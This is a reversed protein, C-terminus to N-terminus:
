AAPAATQQEAVKRFARELDRLRRDDTVKRGELDTVYFSDIAAGKETTIRAVAIQFGADSVARLYYYLLGLRDPATIDVVTYNPNTEASISIRTPFDLTREWKSIRRLKKALLPGFDYSDGQLAEDLLKELRHQDRKDEVAEFRPTTVRFIDLVLGDHRTFIDASLISLENVALAGCIRALLQRRDWTCVWMESHGANPRALWWVVPRLKHAETNWRKELFERFLRLHDAIEDPTHTLLYREPMSAFHADIELVFDAPLRGTVARKMEQLEVLRQRRYGASDALFRSAQRYLAWALSETWSNWIKEDGVGLGDAVTMLMLADLHEQQRVIACFEEITAEDSLDRQRATRAMLDHNDVLFLLTKRQESTLQLRRAVKQANVTSEIVHHRSNAAKGTDHLLLALYLTQPEDMKQFLERVGQHRPEETDLLGDLKEICVLTHEDVTYRHFYEHQVLATLRGFEPMWRGLFDVRHMVRLIPGVQGKHRLIEAFIERNAKLYRFTNDVYKLRRRVLQRLEPSIRLGRLQVHQFLRMMRAKDEKFIQRDRYFLRDGIAVFGDFEERASAQRKRFPLFKFFGGPNPEEQTPLALRESVLESIEYIARANSYYDRMLAETRLLVDPFREKYGLRDALDKQNGVLIVDVHRGTVYHLETRLRFIFDYARDLERQETENLYKRAVIDKTTRVGEKFYAMWLLNQYDRLGGCGNKINPEQMYVTRGYKSHRAMQDELREQLYDDLHGQVCEKQFREQFKKFLEEDGWLLRAELLATKSQMEGNAEAITENLNRTSHGPTLDCAFIIHLVDKVIAELGAALRIGGDRLFSIDVDSKPNLERRGYGGIAMLAVRPAKGGDGPVQGVAVDMLHRLFDDLTDARMRGVELGGSTRRHQLELWKDEVRLAKRYAAVRHDFTYHEASKLRREIEALVKAFRRMTTGQGRTKSLLNSLRNAPRAPM